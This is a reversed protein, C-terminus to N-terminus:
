CVLLRGTVLAVNRKKDFFIRRETAATQWAGMNLLEYWNDTRFPSAPLGVGNFLNAKPDAHWAYRAAAPEKEEPSTLVVKNGFVRATASKWLRDSGAVEFGVLPGDKATL